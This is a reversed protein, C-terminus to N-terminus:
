VPDTAADYGAMINSVTDVSVSAQANYSQVASNIQTVLGEVNARVPEENVAERADLIGNAHNCLKIIARKGNDSNLQSQVGTILPRLYDIKASM